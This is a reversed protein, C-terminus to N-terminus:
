AKRRYGFGAIDEQVLLEGQMNEYIVEINWFRGTGVRTTKIESVSRLIQYQRVQEGMRVPTHFILEDASMIAEPVELAEKLDFHTRLPLGEEDSYPSWFHPRCWVSIMTPPAIWGDTIETSTAEEWYIPNANEVSSCASLVFGREVECEGVEEHRKKGIWSQVIDPLDSVVPM